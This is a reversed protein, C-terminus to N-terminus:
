SRRYQEGERLNFAVILGCMHNHPCSAAVVCQLFITFRSAVAVVLQFCLVFLLLYSHKSPVNCIFCTCSSCSSSKQMNKHMKHLSSLSCFSSLNFIVITLIFEPSFVVKNLYPKERHQSHKCCM